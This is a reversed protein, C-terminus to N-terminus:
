KLTMGCTSMLYLLFFLLKLDYSYFLWLTVSFWIWRVRMSFSFLPFSVGFFFVCVLVRYLVYLVARQFRAILLCVLRSRLTSIYFNVLNYFVSLLYKNYLDYCRRSTDGHLLYELRWNIFMLLFICSSDCAWEKLPCSEVESLFTLSLFASPIRHGPVALTLNLATGPTSERSGSDQLM